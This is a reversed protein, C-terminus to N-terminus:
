ALCHLHCTEYPSSGDNSGSSKYDLPLPVLDRSWLWPNPYLQNHQGPLEDPQRPCAPLLQRTNRPPRDVVIPVVGAARNAVVVVGVVIPVVVPTPHTPTSSIVRETCFAALNRGQQQSLLATPECVWPRPWWLCQPTGARGTGPRLGTGLSQCFRARAFVSDGRGRPAAGQTPAVKQARFASLSSPRFPCFNAQGPNCIWVSGASNGFGIPAVNTRSPAQLYLL